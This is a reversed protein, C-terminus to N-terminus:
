LPGFGGEGPLNGVHDFAKKRHKEDRRTASRGKKERGREYPIVAARGGKKPPLPSHTSDLGRSTEEGSRLPWRIDRKKEGKKREGRGRPARYFFNSLDYFAGEGYVSGRWFSRCFGTSAATDRSKTALSAEGRGGREVKGDKSFTPFPQEGKGSSLPAAAEEKRDRRPCGAEEEGKKRTSRCFHARGKERAHVVSHPESVSGSPHVV